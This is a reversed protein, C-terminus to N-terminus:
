GFMSVLLLLFISNFAPMITTNSSSLSLSSATDKNENANDDEVLISSTKSFNNNGDGGTDIMTPSQTSMVIMPKPNPNPSFTTTATTVWNSMTTPFTTNNNTQVTSPMLTKIVITPNTTPRNTTTTTEPPIDASSSSPILSSVITPKTTTAMITPEATPTQSPPESRPVIAYTGSGSTVGNCQYTQATVVNPRWPGNNGGQAQQQEKVGIEELIADMTYRLTWAVDVKNNGQADARQLGQCIMGRITNSVVEEDEEGSSSGGNAELLTNLTSRYVAICLEKYDYDYLSGGSQITSVILDQMGNISDISITPSVYTTSTVADNETVAVIRKM